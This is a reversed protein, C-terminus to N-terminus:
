YLQRARLYEFWLYGLTEGAPQGDIVLVFKRLTNEISNTFHVGHDSVLKCFHWGTLFMVCCMSFNLGCRVTEVFDKQLHRVFLSFLRLSKGPGCALESMSSDLAIESINIEFNARLM